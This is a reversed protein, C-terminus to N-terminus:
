GCQAAKGVQAGNKNTLSTGATAQQLSLGIRCPGILYNNQGRRGMKHASTSSGARKHGQGISLAHKSRKAAYDPAVM